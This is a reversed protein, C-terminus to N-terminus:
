QSVLVLSLTGNLSGAPTARVLFHEIDLLPRENITDIIQWDIKKGQGRM